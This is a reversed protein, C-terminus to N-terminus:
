DGGVSLSAGEFCLPVSPLSGLPLVCISGFSSASPLLWSHVGMGPPVWYLLALNLLQQAGPQCLPEVLQSILQLFCTDRFGQRSM